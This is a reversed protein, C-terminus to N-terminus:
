RRGPPGGAWAGGVRLAHAAFEGASLAPWDGDATALPRGPQRRPAGVFVVRRIRHRAFERAFHVGWARRLTTAFYSRAEKASRAGIRRWHQKSASEVVCDFLQHLDDSAEAYAGVVLSPEHEAAFVIGAVGATNLTFTSDESASDFMLNYCVGSTTPTLTAGSSVDTCNGEILVAADGELSEMTAATPTHTAIMVLKMTPDAYKGDVKQALWSHADHRRQYRLRRDVRFATDLRRRRRPPPSTAGVSARAKSARVFILGQREPRVATM